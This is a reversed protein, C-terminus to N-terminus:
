SQTKQSSRVLTKAARPVSDNHLATLSQQNVANVAESLASSYCARYARVSQLYRSRHASCVDRSASQLRQYLAAVQSEGALDNQSYRIVEKEVQEQSSAIGPSSCIGVALAACMMAHRATFSAHSFM